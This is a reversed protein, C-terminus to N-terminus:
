PAMKYLVGNGTTGGDLCTGYLNGAADRIVGAETNAGDAGSFSHLV